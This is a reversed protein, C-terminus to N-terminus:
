APKELVFQNVEFYDQWFAGEFGALYLEWMRCFREDYKQPDLKHKITMFNERWSRLTKAYHFSEHRFPPHYLHLGQNQAAQITESARPIQGGPFIYKDVWENTASVDGLSVITHILARGGPKLLNYVASFFDPYQARGVHEFMGISVIRDYDEPNERAHERYDQLYYELGADDAKARAGALQNDALTLGVTKGTDYNNHLRRSAEGWGCGIDLVHMGPEVGLRKITTDIKNLQAQRLSMDPADFFACSYNMGEDLFRTYLDDGIDYHHSANERSAEITNSALKGRLGAIYEMGRVVAKERVLMQNHLLYGTFDGLDDHEALAWHGDMYSEGFGLEPSTMIRGLAGADYVNFTFSPEGKGIRLRTDKYHLEICGYSILLNALWAPGHLRLREKLRAHDSQAPTTLVGSQTQSDLM